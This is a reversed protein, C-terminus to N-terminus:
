PRDQALTFKTFTKMNRNLLQIIDKQQKISVNFINNYNMNSPKGENLTECNLLHESELKTGCICFEAGGFNYKLDKM